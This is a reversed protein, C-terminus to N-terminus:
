NSNKLCHACHCGPMHLLEQSPLVPHAQLIPVGNQDRLPPGVYGQATNSLPFYAWILGNYAYFHFFNNAYQSHRQPLIFNSEQHFCRGDDLLQWGPLLQQSQQQANPIASGNSSTEDTSRNDSSADSSNSPTEDDNDSSSDSGNSSTEAGSNSRPSVSAGSFGPVISLLQQVTSDPQFNPHYYFSISEYSGGGQFGYPILNGKFTGVKDENFYNQCTVDKEFAHV